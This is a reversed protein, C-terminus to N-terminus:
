FILVQSFIAYNKQIYWVHWKIYDGKKDIDERMGQTGWFHSVSSTHHWVQRAGTIIFLMLVMTYLLPSVSLSLLLMEREREREREIYIYVSLSLCVCVYTFLFWYSNFHGLIKAEAKKLHTPTPPIKSVSFNLCFCGCGASVFPWLCHLSRWSNLIKYYIKEECPLLFFCASSSVAGFVCVCGGWCNITM